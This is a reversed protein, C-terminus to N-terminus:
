FTTSASFVLGDSFNEEISERIHFGLTWEGVVYGVDISKDEVGEYDGFHLTVDVVPIMDLSLNAYKYELGNDDDRFHGVELPGYGIAIYREEFDLSSSNDGDYKYALYGVDYSFDGVEGRYGGYLDFEFNADDFDVNSTWFGGYVGNTEHEIGIQATAQGDTQSIGRWVYDTGFSYQGSLAFISTSLFVGALLVLLKKM